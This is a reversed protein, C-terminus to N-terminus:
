RRGRNVFDIVHQATKQNQETWEFNRKNSSTQNSCIEIARVAIQVPSERGLLQIQAVDELCSNAPSGPSAAATFAIFFVLASLRVYKFPHAARSCYTGCKGLVSFRRLSKQGNMVKGFEFGACSVPPFVAEVSEHFVCRSDRPQMVWKKLPPPGCTPPTGAFIIDDSQNEDTFPQFLRSCAPRM